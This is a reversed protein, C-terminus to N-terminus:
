RIAPHDGTTSKRPPPEHAKMDAMWRDVQKEADEKMIGYREQIKGILGDKKAGIMKVDDDTLKAWTGKIYSGMQKWQGEIQDWNM